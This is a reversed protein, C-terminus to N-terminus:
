RFIRGNNEEPVDGLVLNELYLLRSLSWELKGILIEM